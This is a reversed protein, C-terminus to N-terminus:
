KEIELIFHCYINQGLEEKNRLARLTYKMGAQELPQLVRDKLHQADYKRSSPVGYCDLRVYEQADADPYGKGFYEPTSYACYHTHMYLPLIIAKGGPKLIRALEPILQQDDHGVFMEYACQLSAGTISADKFKTQTANEQRYYPLHRYSSGVPGIDIAFASIGLRERLVQGWPSNCAAIDVYIDDQGYQWLGLLDGAIWHELLKEDWVPGDVGGHYDLPFYNAQQFKAFSESSPSYDYVLIGLATLDREIQELEAATPNSYVPADQVAWRYYTNQIKRSFLQFAKQSSGFVGHEKIKETISM